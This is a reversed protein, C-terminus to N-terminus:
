VALFPNNLLEYNLTTEPGHGPLIRLSGDLPLIKQNLSEMLQDYDGGPLDTRGISGAFLTDGSLLFGQQPSYLCIGGPSHGPTELVQLSSHGFCLPYKESLPLTQTPPAEIEIGFYQSHKTANELSHLDGPHLYTPIGWQRSVFANGMIHDFHAHTNVIGKLQLGEQEIFKQLRVQESASNCGPDVILAEKTEDWLIYCCVRLENFYFTKIQIM